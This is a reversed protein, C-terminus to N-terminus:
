STESRLQASHSRAPAAAPLPPRRARVHQGVHTRLRLPAAHGHRRPGDEGVVRQERCRVRVAGGVIEVAIGVQAVQARGVRPHAGVAAFQGGVHHPARHLPQEGLAQVVPRELVALVMLAVQDRQREVGAHQHRQAEAGVAPRRPHTAADIHVAQRARRPARQLRNPVPLHSRALCQEVGANRSCTSAYTVTRQAVTVLRTASTCAAIAGLPAVRLKTSWPPVM